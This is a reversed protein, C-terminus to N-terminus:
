LYKNGGCGSYLKNSIVLVIGFLATLLVLGATFFGNFFTSFDTALVELTGLVLFITFFLLNKYYIAGAFVGALFGTFFGVLTTLWFVLLFIPKAAFTFFSIGALGALGATGFFTLFDEAETIPYVGAYYSFYLSSIFFKLAHDFWFSFSM